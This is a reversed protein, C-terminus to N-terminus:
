SKKTIIGDSQSELEHELVDAYAQISDGLTEAYDFIKEDDGYTLPHKRIEVAKELAQPCPCLHEELAWQGAATKAIIKGTRLTYLCRSIDLLWGFSYFDRGTQKGFKRIGEYHGRIDATLDHYTPFAVNGRVDKGYLLVGHDLLQSRGFSDLRYHDTMRQGRTGWYVVTDAEGWLFASLSLMGGEFSRYYPNGPNEKLMAQRLYVLEEGQPESIPKQTLVLIDIDSWGLRFDELLVSGYLYISPQADALVSAIRDTMIEISEWLKKMM